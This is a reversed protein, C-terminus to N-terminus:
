RLAKIEEMLFEQAVPDRKPLMHRLRQSRRAQTLTFVRSEQKPECKNLKYKVRTGRTKTPRYDCFALVFADAHDPSHDVEDHEIISGTRGNNCLSYMHGNVLNFAIVRHLDGAARARRHRCSSSM